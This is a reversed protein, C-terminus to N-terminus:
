INNNNTHLQSTRNDNPTMGSGEPKYQGAVKIWILERTDLKVKFTLKEPRRKLYYRDILPKYKNTLSSFSKYVILYIVAFADHFAIEPQVM